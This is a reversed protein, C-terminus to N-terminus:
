VRKFPWGGCVEHWKLDAEYVKLKKELAHREEEMGKLKDDAAQLRTM